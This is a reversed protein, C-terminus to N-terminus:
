VEIIEMVVRFGITPSPFSAHITYAQLPLEPKGKTEFGIQQWNNGIALNKEELWESVNTNMHKIPLSSINPYESRSLLFHGEYQDSTLYEIIAFHPSSPNFLEEKTLNELHWENAEMISDPKQLDLYFVEDFLNIEKEYKAATTPWEKQTPLRFLVKAYERDETNNYKTSLWRCYEKAGDQSVNVVPKKTDYGYNENFALYYSKFPKLNLWEETYIKTQLDDNKGTSNLFEEYEAVTCEKTSLFIGSKIEVYSNKEFDTYVNLLIIISLTTILKM